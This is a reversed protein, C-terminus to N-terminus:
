ESGNRESFDAQEYRKFANKSCCKIPNGFSVLFIKEGSRHSKTRIKM